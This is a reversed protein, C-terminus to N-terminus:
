KAISGSIANLAGMGAGMGQDISRNIPTSISNGTGGGHGSTVGPLSNSTALGPLSQSAGNTTILRSISSGSAVGAFDGDSLEMNSTSSTVRASPNASVSTPNPDPQLAPSGIPYPQVKRTLVITGDDTAHICASFTSGLAFSVLLCPVLGSNIKM